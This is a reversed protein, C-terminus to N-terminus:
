VSLTDMHVRTWVCLIKELFMHVCCQEEHFWRTSANFPAKEYFLSLNNVTVWGFMKRLTWCVSEKRLFYNCLWNKKTFRNLQCGHEVCDHYSISTRVCFHTHYQLLILAVHCNVRRNDQTLKSGDTRQDLWEDMWWGDMEGGMYECMWRNIFRHM